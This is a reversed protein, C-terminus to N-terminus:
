YLCRNVLLKKNFVKVCVKYFYKECTFKINRDKLNNSVTLPCNMETDPLILYVSIMIAPFNDEAKPTQQLVSYDYLLM